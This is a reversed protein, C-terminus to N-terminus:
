SELSLEFREYGDIMENTRIFNSRELVRRSQINGQRIRAFLGAYGAVRALRCMAQVANTMVGRHHSSSWYGVEAVPDNSKIDCVAVIRRSEDLVAFVFHTQSSWGAKSWELLQRAQAQGYPQGELRQRFLWDYIAPENCIAVVQALMAPTADLHGACGLWYPRGTLHNRIPVNISNPFRQAM